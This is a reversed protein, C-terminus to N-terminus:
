IKAIAFSDVLKKKGKIRIRAETYGVRYPMIYDVIGKSLGKGFVYYVEDGAKLVQMNIDVITQFYSAKFSGLDERYQIKYEEEYIRMANADLELHKYSDIWKQYSPSM